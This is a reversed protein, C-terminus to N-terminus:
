DSSQVHNIKKASSVVFRMVERLAFNDRGNPFDPDRNEGNPFPTKASNFIFISKGAFKTFDFLIDFREAPSVSISTLTAPAALFGQDSGIVTFPIPQSPDGNTFALTLSRSNAGNLFRLRYLTPKVKHYPKVVGNVVMETGVFEDAAFPFETPFNPPFYLQVSGDPAFYFSKDQFILPVEFEGSPLNMAAEKKDKLLLAGFLGMYVNKRTIGLAHDHYWILSGGMHVPFDFKYTVAEGPQQEYEPYGDFQYKNIGGHLHVVQRNTDGRYNPGHPCGDFGLPHPGAPLQNVFKVAISAGNCALITPGPYHGDYGFFYISNKLQSHFVHKKRKSTITYNACTYTYGKKPCGNSGSDPKKVLPIILPDAFSTLVFPCIGAVDCTAGRIWNVV